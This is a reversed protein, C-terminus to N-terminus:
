GHQIRHMAKATYSARTASFVSESSERISDFALVPVGSSMVCYAM